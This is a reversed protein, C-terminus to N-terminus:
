ARVIVVLKAGVMDVPVLTREIQGDDEKTSLWRQCPFVSINNKSSVEVRDLFWSSGIVSNDHRIKLQFCIM